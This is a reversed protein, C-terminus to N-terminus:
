CYLGTSIVTYRSEALGMVGVALCASVLMCIPVPIDRIATEM